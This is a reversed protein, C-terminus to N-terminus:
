LTPSDRRVTLKQSNRWGGPNSSNKFLDTECDSLSLRFIWCALRAMEFDLREQPRDYDIPSM